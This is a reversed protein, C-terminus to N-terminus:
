EEARGDSAMHIVVCDSVVRRNHPPAVVLMHREKASM